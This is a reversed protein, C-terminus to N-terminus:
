DQYQYSASKKKTIFSDIGTIHGSPFMLLVILGAMEIFTKNVIWYSGEVPANVSLGAIPPYALYYMLLLAIGAIKAPKELLGLFLGLGILILGWENLSDVVSLVAANSTIAHFIGSLPGVSGELYSKATWGPTFLKMLGEFLFHWGILVRLFTLAFLQCNTYNTQTKM